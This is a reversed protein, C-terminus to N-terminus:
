APATVAVKAANTLTTAVANVKGLATAVAAITAPDKVGVIPELGTALTTVGAAAATLNTAGTETTVAAELLTLGGSARNLAAAAAPEGAATAVLAGDNLVTQAESLDSDLQAGHSKLWGFPKVLDKGIDALISKLGM